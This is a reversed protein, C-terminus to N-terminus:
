ENWRGKQQEETPGQQAKVFSTPLMAFKQMKPVYARQTFNDYGNAEIADLIDRYVDLASWV